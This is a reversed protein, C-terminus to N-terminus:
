SINYAPDTCYLDFLSVLSRDTQESLHLNHLSPDASSINRCIRDGSSSHVVVERGVSDGIYHTKLLQIREPIQERIM